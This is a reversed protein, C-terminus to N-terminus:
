RHEGMNVFAEIRRPKKRNRTAGHEYMNMQTTLFGPTYILQKKADALFSSNFEKQRGGTNASFSM